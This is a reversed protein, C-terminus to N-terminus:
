QKLLSNLFLFALHLPLPEWSFFCVNQDIVGPLSPVTVMKPSFYFIKPIARGYDHRSADMAVLSVVLFDNYGSSFLLM